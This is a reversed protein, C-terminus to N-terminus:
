VNCPYLLQVSHPLVHWARVCARVYTRACVCVSPSLASCQSANSYACDIGDTCAAGNACPESACEDVWTCTRGDDITSYGAQCTCEPENDVLACTAHDPDCDNRAGCGEMVNECLVGSYSGVCVCTFSALLDLCVAGNQCPTSSCEDIEVACLESEWGPQCACGATDNRCAGGNMCACSECNEGSWGVECNCLYSASMLDDCLGRQCPGSACEDTNVECLPGEWGPM